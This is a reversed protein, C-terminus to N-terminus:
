HYRQDMKQDLKQDIIKLAQQIAKRGANKLARLYVLKCAEKKCASLSDELWKLIESSLQFLLSTGIWVINPNRYLQNTYFDATYFGFCQTVQLM